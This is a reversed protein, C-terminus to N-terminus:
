DSTDATELGNLVNPKTRGVAGWQGGHTYPHCNLSLIVELVAEEECVCEGFTM